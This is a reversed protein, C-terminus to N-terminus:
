DRIKSEPDLQGDVETMSIFEYAPIGSLLITIPLGILAPAAAFPYTPLLRRSRHQDDAVHVRRRQVLTDTLSLLLTPVSSDHVPFPIRDTSLGRILRSYVSLYSVGPIM